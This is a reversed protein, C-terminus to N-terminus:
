SIGRRRSKMMKLFEDNKIILFGPIRFNLFEFFPLSLNGFNRFEQTESDKSFHKGLFDLSAGQNEQNLELLETYYFSSIRAELAWFM